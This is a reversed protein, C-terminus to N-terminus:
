SCCGFPTTATTQTIGGDFTSFKGQSLNYAIQFYYFSDDYNADRILNVLDFAALM